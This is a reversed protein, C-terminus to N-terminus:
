AINHQITIHNLMSYSKIYIYIYIYIYMCIAKTKFVEGGKTCIGPQKAEVMLNAVTMKGLRERQEALQVEYRDTPHKQVFRACACLEEVWEQWFVEFSLDLAAQKDVLEHPNSSTSTCGQSLEVFMHEVMGSALTPLYTRGAVSSSLGSSAAVVPRYTMGGVMKLINVVYLMRMNELVVPTVCQQEFRLPGLESVLEPPEPCGDAFFHKTKDKAELDSTSKLLAILADEYASRAAVVAEQALMKGVEMETLPVQAMAVKQVVTTLVINM